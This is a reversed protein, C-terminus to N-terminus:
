QDTEGLKEEQFALMRELQWLVDPDYDGESVAHKLWTITSFHSDVKPKGRKRDVIELLLRKSEPGLLRYVDPQQLEQENGEIVSVELVNRALFDDMDLLSEIFCFIEKLVADNREQFSKVLFPEFIDGYVIHSGTDDGDQWSVENEYAPILHPFNEILMKNLTIRKMVERGNEFCEEFRGSSCRGSRTSRHNEHTPLETTM